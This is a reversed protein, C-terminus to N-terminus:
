TGAGQVKRKPRPIRPRPIAPRKRAARRGARALQEFLTPGSAAAARAEAATQPRLYRPLLLGCAILVAAAAPQLWFGELLSAEAGEYAVAADGEDLGTPVDVILAVAIALLGIPVLGVAARRRGTLALVVLVLAAIALPIMVWAHASGALESDVEPAPAVTGVSGAYADIGVSISRYDIFQSAALVGAAVVAVAAVARAPTVHREAFRLCARAANWLWILAPRLVRLWAALVFAGAPEAVALWLQAPIVLMERALKVLETGVAVAGGGLKRAEAGVAGARRPAREGTREAPTAGKPRRFSPRSERKPRREATAARKAQDARRSQERREARARARKARSSSIRKRLSM